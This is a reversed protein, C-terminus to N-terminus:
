EDNEWEREKFFEFNKKAYEIERQPTKQTEKM